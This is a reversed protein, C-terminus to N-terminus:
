KGSFQEYASRFIEGLKQADEPTLNKDRILHARVIAPVPEDPSYIVPEGEGGVTMLRQVPLKLWDAIRSITDADPFGKGALIRSVTSNSIGLAAAADRQSLNEKECKAKIERRLADIIRKRQESNHDGKM